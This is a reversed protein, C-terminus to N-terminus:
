SMLAQSLAIRCSTQAHVVLALTHIRSANQYCKVLSGCLRPQYALGPFGHPELIASATPCPSPYPAIPTPINPNPPLLLRRRTWSPHIEEQVQPPRAEMSTRASHMRSAQWCSAKTTTLTGPYGCSPGLGYAPPGAALSLATPVAGCCESLKQLKMEIYVGHSGATGTHARRESSRWPAGACLIDPGAPSGSERRRQLTRESRGCVASEGACATCTRLSRTLCM